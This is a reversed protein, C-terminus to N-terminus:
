QPLRPTFGARQLPYRAIGMVFVDLIISSVADVPKRMEPGPLRRGELGFAINRYVSMHPRLVDNQFVMGM